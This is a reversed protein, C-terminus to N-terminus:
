YPSSRLRTESPEDLALSFLPEDLSPSFQLEGVEVSATDLDDGKVSDAVKLTVKHAREQEHTLLLLDEDRHSRVFIGVSTTATRKPVPPLLSQYSVKLQSLRVEFFVVEFKRYKHLRYAQLQGLRSEGRQIKRRDAAEHHRATRRHARDLSRKPLSPVNLQCLTLHPTAVKRVCQM